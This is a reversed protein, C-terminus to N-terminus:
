IRIVVQATSATAMGFASLLEEKACLFFEGGLSESTKALRAKLVDEAAKASAGDTFSRSKFAVSWRLNCAPPLASNHDACRRDTDNSYGVKFIVKNGVQFPQRNLLQTPQGSFQLAYLFHDGDLRHSSQEGFKPDIGRSPTFSSTLSEEAVPPMGFVNVPSVPLSLAVAAESHTLLAGRSAIIRAYNPTLTLPAIHNISIRRQVAAARIVPVAYCWKDEWGNDSKRKLGVPSIRDTDRILTPEIELFGLAQRRKEPATTPADAGYILILDSEQWQDLFWARNGDLTFGLYGEEETSFGWFATIWVRPSAADAM